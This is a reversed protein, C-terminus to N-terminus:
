LSFCFILKRAHSHSHSDTWNVFKEPGQLHDNEGHSHPSDPIFGQGAPVTYRSYRTSFTLLYSVTLGFVIGAAFTVLQGKGPSM